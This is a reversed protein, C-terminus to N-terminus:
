KSGGENNDSRPDTDVNETLTLFGERTGAPPPAGNALPHLLFLSPDRVSVKVSVRMRGGGSPAVAVLGSQVESDPRGDLAGELDGTAKALSAARSADGAQVAAEAARKLWRISEEKNGKEWLAGAVDLADAVDSADTTVSAPVRPMLAEAHKM